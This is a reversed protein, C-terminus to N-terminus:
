IAHLRGDIQIALRLKCQRLSAFQRKKTAESMWEQRNIITEYEKLIQAIMMEVAEKDKASFTNRQCLDYWFGM